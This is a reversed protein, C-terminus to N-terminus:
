FKRAVIAVAPIAERIHRRELIAMKQPYARIHWSKEYLLKKELICIIDTGFFCSNVKGCNRGVEQMLNFVRRAVESIQCLQMTIDCSLWFRCNLPIFVSDFFRQTLEASLVGDDLIATVYDKHNTVDCSVVDAAVRASYTPHTPKM